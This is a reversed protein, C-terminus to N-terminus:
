VFKIKWYNLIQQHFAPLIMLTYVLISLFPSLVSGQSIGCSINQICFRSDYISVYLTRDHLFLLSFILGLVMYEM